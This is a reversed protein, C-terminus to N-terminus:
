HSHGGSIEDAWSKAVVYVHEDIIGLQRLKAIEEQKEANSQFKETISFLYAGGKFQKVDPQLKVQIVLNKSLLQELASKIQRSEAGEFREGEDSIPGYNRLRIFGSLALTQYKPLVRIELQTVQFLPSHKLADLIGHM